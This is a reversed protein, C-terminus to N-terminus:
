QQLCDKCKAQEAGSLILYVEAADRSDGNMVEKHLQLQNTFDDKRECAIELVYM